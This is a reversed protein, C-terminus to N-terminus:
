LQVAALGNTHTAIDGALKQGRQEHGQRQGCGALCLSAALLVSLDRLRSSLFLRM